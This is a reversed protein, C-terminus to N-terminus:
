GDGIGGEVSAAALAVHAAPGAEYRRQEPPLGALMAEYLRGSDAEVVARWAALEARLARNEVALEALAHELERLYAGDVSPGDATSPARQARALDPSVPHGM